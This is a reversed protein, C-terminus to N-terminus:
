LQWEGAVEARVIHQKSVVEETHPCWFYWWRLLEPCVRIQLFNSLSLFKFSRFPSCHCSMQGGFDSLEQSCHM